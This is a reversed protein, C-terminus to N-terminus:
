DHFMAPTEASPLLPESVEQASALATRDGVYVSPPLPCRRQMPTLTLYGVLFLYLIIAPCWVALKFQAAQAEADAQLADVLPAISSTWVLLANAGVVAATLGWSLASRCEVHRDSKRRPRHPCLSGTM